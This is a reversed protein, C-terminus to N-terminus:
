DNLYEELKKFEKLSLESYFLKLKKGSANVDELLFFRRNIPRVPHIIWHEQTELADPVLSSLETPNMVCSADAQLEYVVFPVGSNDESIYLSLDNTELYGGPEFIVDTMPAANLCNEISNSVCVRQIKNDEGYARQFPIRPTFEQITTWPDFSIHFYTEIVSNDSVNQSIMM